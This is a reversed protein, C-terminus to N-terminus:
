RILAIDKSQVYLFSRNSFKKVSGVVYVYDGETLFIPITGQSVIINICESNKKVQSDCLKFNNSNIDFVFGAVKVYAGDHISSIGSVSIIKPSIFMSLIFLSLIGIISFIISINLLNERSVSPIKLFINYKSERKNLDKSHQKESRQTKKSHENLSFKNSLISSLFRELNRRFTFVKRSIADMAM